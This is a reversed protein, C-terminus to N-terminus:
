IVNIKDGKSTPSSVSNNNADIELKSGSPQRFQPSVVDAPGQDQVSNNQCSRNTLTQPDITELTAFKDSKGDLTPRPTQKSQSTTKVQQYKELKLQEQQHAKHQRQIDNYLVKYLDDM